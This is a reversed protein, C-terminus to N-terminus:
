VAFYKTIRANEDVRFVHTFLPTRAVCTYKFDKPIGIMSSKFAKMLFSQPMTGIFDGVIVNQYKILYEQSEKHIINLVFLGALAEVTNALTAEEICDFWKHKVHNYSNWWIPIKNNKFEEFPCCKRDYFTLGYATDVEMGSLKYIPEFFDRFYNVDKKRGKLAPVHPYSQFSKDKLMYRFFSDVSNGIKVLLDSFFESWIKKYRKEFPFYPTTNIFEDELRKYRYWALGRSFADIM